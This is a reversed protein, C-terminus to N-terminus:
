TGFSRSFREWDEPALPGGTELFRGQDVLRMGATAPTPPRTAHLLGALMREREKDSLDLPHGFLLDMGHAPFDTVRGEPPLSNTEGLPQVTLQKGNWTAYTHEPRYCASWLRKGRSFIAYAGVPDAGGIATLTAVPGTLESLALAIADAAMRGFLNWALEQVEEPFGLRPALLTGSLNTLIGDCDDPVALHLVRITGALPDPSRERARPDIRVPASAQIVLDADPRLHGGLLETVLRHIVILEVAQGRHVILTPDAYPNRNAATTNQQESPNSM